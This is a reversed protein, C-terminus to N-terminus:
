PLETLSLLIPVRLPVGRQWRGSFIGRRARHVLLFAALQPVRM